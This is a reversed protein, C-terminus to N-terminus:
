SFFNSLDLNNKEEEDMEVDSIQCLVLVSSSKSLDVSAVISIAQSDIEGTTDNFNSELSNDTNNQSENM